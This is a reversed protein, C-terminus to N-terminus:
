TGVVKQTDAIATIQNKAGEEIEKVLRQLAGPNELHPAHLRILDRMMSFTVRAGSASQDASDFDGLLAWCGARAKVFLGEMTTAPTAVIAADIRDFEELTEWAIDLGHEIAHDIQAALADFRQGLALLVIDAGVTRAPDACRM